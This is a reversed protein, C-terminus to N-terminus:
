GGGRIRAFKYNLWQQRIERSHRSHVPLTAGTSVTCATGSIQTVHDMNVVVGKIIRLFREDLRSEADRLTMRTRYQEGRRDSVTLYNGNAELSVLASLPLSYDRRDATFTFRKEQRTKLHLVHDLARFVADRSIPKVLYDTAFVSFADSRHEESTTMFILVVDDDQERIRKATEVGTMGDMYIDLFIVSFAFPRFALLLDEGASFEVPELELAHAAGYERIIGLLAGREAAQDDVVAIKM